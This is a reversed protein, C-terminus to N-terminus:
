AYNREGFRDSSLRKKLGIQNLIHLPQDDLYFLQVERKFDIYEKEDGLFLKKHSKLVEFAFLSDKKYCENLVVVDVKKGLLSELKASDFGLQIYDVEDKFFLGIDIDSLKHASENANSGFLLVFSYHTSAAFYNKLQEIM